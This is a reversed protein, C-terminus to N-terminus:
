EPIKYEINKGGSDFVVMALFIKDEPHFVDLQKLFSQFKSHSKNMDTRLTTQLLIEAKVNKYNM